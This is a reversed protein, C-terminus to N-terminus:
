LTLGRKKLEERVRRKDGGYEKLLDKLEEDTAKRTPPQQTRVTPARLQVQGPKARPTYGRIAVRFSRGGWTGKELEVVADLGLDQFIDVIQTYRNKLVDESSTGLKKEEATKIVRVKAVKEKEDWEFKPDLIKLQGKAYREAQEPTLTKIDKAGAAEARAIAAPDTAIFTFLNTALDWQYLSDGVKVNEKTVGTLASQIVRNKAFTKEKDSLTSNLEIVNMMAQVNEPLAPPTLAGEPVPIKADQFVKDAWAKAKPMRYLESNAYIAYARELRQQYEIRSRALEDTKAIQEIKLKNRAKDIQLTDLVGEEREGSTFLQGAERESTTFQQEAIRQEAQFRRRREAEAREAEIQEAQREEMGREALVRQQIDPYYFTRFMDETSRLVDQLTVEGKPTDETRVLGAM